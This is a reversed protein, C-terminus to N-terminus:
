QAPEPAPTETTAAPAEAPEDKSKAVIEALLPRKTKKGLGLRYSTTKGKRDLTFHAEFEGSGVKPVELTLVTSSKGLHVILKGTRDLTVEVGAPTHNIHVLDTDSLLTM